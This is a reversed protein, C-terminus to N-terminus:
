YDLIVEEPGGGEGHGFNKKNAATCAPAQGRFCPPARRTGEPVNIQEKSGEKESVVKLSAIARSIFGSGLARFKEADVVSSTAAFNSFIKVVDGMFVFDWRLSRAFAAVLGRRLELATSSAACSTPESCEQEVPHSAVVPQESALFARHRHQLRRRPRIQYKRM